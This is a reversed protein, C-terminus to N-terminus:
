ISIYMMHAASPVPGYIHITRVIYPVDEETFVVAYYQYVLIQPVSSALMRFVAYDSHFVYMYIYIYVHILFLSRPETM